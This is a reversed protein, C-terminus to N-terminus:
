EDGALFLFHPRMWAPVYRLDARLQRRDATSFRTRLEALRASTIHQRGINRLAEAVWSSTRGALAMTKTSRRRLIVESKGGTSLVRARGAIGDAARAAVQTSLGLLNAAHASPPILKLGDRRAIAAIVADTDTGVTGIIPNEHPVEYVGRRVRRITGIKVLRTLGKGVSRPDGFDAFDSPTFAWDPGKGNIRRLLGSQLDGYNTKM